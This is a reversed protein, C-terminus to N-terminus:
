KLSVIGKKFCMTEKSVIHKFLDEMAVVDFYNHKLLKTTKQKQVSTIENFNNQNNKLGSIIANIRATTKGPAYDSPAQVCHKLLRMISALSMKKAIFKCKNKRFEPLADFEKKHFKNKWTKAVRALNIYKIEPILHIPIISKIINLEALSYAVIIGEASKIDSFLKNIAVRHDLFSINFEKQYKESTCIPKLRDNVVLTSHVNNNKIGLLFIDGKKNTEFDIFFLKKLEINKLDM